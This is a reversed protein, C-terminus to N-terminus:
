ADPKCPLGTSWENFRTGCVPLGIVYYLANLVNVLM